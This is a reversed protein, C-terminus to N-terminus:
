ELAIRMRRCQVGAIACLQDVQASREADLKSTSVVLQEVKERGALEELKDLPGLVKVGHIMRGQKQPDDDVFGVPLLGLDRNNLLERLLLEGGDGAGYILVRKADPTQHFRLMWTRLLRFVIRSGAVGLFLLVGDMVLVGRSWGDFRFIFVVALTSAIWAGGVAKMLTPLDSMSTYRWLGRYLGLALFAALQCVIVIPLSSTFHLYFPRVIEGDFRLLYAAYYALVVLVLDNLVEFVRRKYSFDALTPLLARGRVEAANEVPAYVKVRGVFVFFFLMMMGFVPVLLAVVPWTFNRVVVALGGSVAALAWLTFAAGRESLGLAVLRHSTHDRGGQSVSRGHFKRLFTVLTTDIIPILLLLVPVTLVALVNRRLGSQNNVLAVGGLTFGLFLSGCDGMFISAPNVNFVLFGITAGCFSAALLAAGTQGEVHCFYVLYAAAIAAVGGALGDINDLLNLANTIGVLWFITLAYDAIPWPLWNLRLGFMTLVTAAVIQGVLKTYPKLQVLDDVIGLGFIASACALLLVNGHVEAPRRILYATIFGGYIGIGGLLATPKKHWRDARPRAVMGFRRALTRVILTLVLSAALAIGFSLGYRTV